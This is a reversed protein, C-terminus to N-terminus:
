AVVTTTLLIIYLLTERLRSQGEAALRMQEDQSADCSESASRRSETAADVVADGVLSSGEGIVDRTVDDSGTDRGHSTVCHQSKDGGIGDIDRVNGSVAPAPTRGDANRVL